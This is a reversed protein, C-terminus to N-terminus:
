VSNEVRNSFALWLLASIWAPSIVLHSLLQNHPLSLGRYSLASMDTEIQLERCTFAHNEARWHGCTPTPILLPQVSM